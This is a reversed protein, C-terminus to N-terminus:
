KKIGLEELTKTDITTPSDMLPDYCNSNMPFSMVDRISTKGLIICMLRELGIAFGGHPPVGYKFAKLFGKFNNLVEEKNYGCTEFNNLLIELNNERIGGSCLEFGNCTLDYIHAIIKSKDTDNKKIKVFPNHLFEWKGEAKEYLPFDTIFCFKIKNDEPYYKRLHKILIGNNKLSTEEKDCNFFYLGEELDLYKNLPGIMKGGESKIYTFIIKEKKFFEIIDNIEKTTLDLKTHIGKVVEGKEIKLKFLDIKNFLNSFDKIVLPIRLDPKDSGYTEISEKYTIKNFTIEKEPNFKNFITIIIETITEIMDEETTFSREADIQTFYPHRDERSDEDRFCWAIQYYDNFYGIQLLQKYLQPSQALVYCKGKYKRSPVLYNKAGEPTDTTMPPTLVEKFGLEEMVNRIYSIIKSVEILINTNKRWYLYRYKLKYDTNTTENIHDIEIPLSESITQIEILNSKIELEGNYKDKNINGEERLILKGTVTIVSERKLLINFDKEEIVVQINETTDYLDLFIIGGHNRITKIWGSVTIKKDILHKLDKCYANRYKNPKMVKNHKM